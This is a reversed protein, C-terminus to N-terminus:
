HRYSYLMITVSEVTYDLGQATPNDKPRAAILRVDIKNVTQQPLVAEFLLDGPAVPDDTTHASRGLIQGNLSVILKYARQQQELVPSIRPIIQLNMHTPNLFMTFSQNMKQPHPPVNISQRKDAHQDLPNSTHSRVCVNALIADKVGTAINM